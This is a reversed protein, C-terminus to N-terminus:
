SSLWSAVAQLIAALAWLNVEVKVVKTALKFMVYLGTKAPLGAL